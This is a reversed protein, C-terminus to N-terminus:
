PLARAAVFTNWSAQDPESDSLWKHFEIREFGRRSLLSEIEPWFFYRMWHNEEVPLYSVVHFLAVM